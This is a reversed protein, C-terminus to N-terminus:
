SSLGQDRAMSGFREQLNPLSYCQMADTATHQWEKLKRADLVCEVMLDALHAADRYRVFCSALRDDSNFFWPVLSPKCFRLADDFSGSAKTHSFIETVTGDVFERRLPTVIVDAASMKREFEAVPVFGGACDVDMGQCSLQQFERVIRRGYLGIPAGLVVFAVKGRAEAPFRRLAELLTDYDRRMKQVHGPVVFTTKDTPEGPLVRRAARSPLYYVPKEFGARGKVQEVLPAYEVVVGDLNALIKRRIFVGTFANYIPFPFLINKLHWLKKFYTAPSRTDKFWWNTNYVVGLFRCRPRFFFFFSSTLTNAVVIDLHQDCHRQVRKM